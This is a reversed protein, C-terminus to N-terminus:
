LLDMLFKGFPTFRILIISLYYWVLFAAYIIPLKIYFIKIKRNINKNFLFIIFFIIGILLNAFNSLFYLNKLFNSDVFQRFSVISLEPIFLAFSLIIFFVFFITSIFFLLKIVKNM